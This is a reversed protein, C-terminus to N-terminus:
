LVEKNLICRLAVATYGYGVDSCEFRDSRMSFTEYSGNEGDVAVGVWYATAIQVCHFVSLMDTYQGVRGALASLVHAPVHTNIKVIPTTM